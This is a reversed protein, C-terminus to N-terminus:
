PLPVDRVEFSFKKVAEPVALQVVLKTDPLPSSALETQQFDNSSWKGRTKLPKGQADQFELSVVRKEPDKVYMQLADKSGSMMGGFMGKFMEGFAEGLKNGDADASAKAQAEIEKKKAEYTEKTLYMLVIGYKKLVPNAIPEAPHKLVDKLTLIAGNAESPSFLEVEGKLSKIVTANRSPNRLKVEAKLAGGSRSSGFSSSSDNDEKGSRLDRGSEDLAETVRVRRVTGADSAADGTFKLELKCESSFSSTTRNDTVDGVSAHLPTPSKPVSQAHLEAPLALLCAAAVRPLLQRSKFSTM